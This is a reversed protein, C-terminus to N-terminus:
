MRKPAEIGLLWLGNRITHAFAQALALKYPATPSDDLIKETAYWSNWTSALEVLYTTIQHPEHEERARVVIEPFRYLLRELSTADHPALETSPKVGLAKAKELVSVARTHAYQLYPGSDGDFSLAANPDFTINKGVKQKLVSYKIAAVAVARAIDDKEAEPLDREAVKERTLALMNMLMDEGTIVNGRRSSMKGSSLNMMGHPVHMFKGAFEPRLRALAAFSVKFYEEQEVATVTISRDFDWKEAKLEALGLEKADYTPLGYSNLFVRTHLGIEEGKFVVAGESEVFVGDTLGEKVLARGPKETQSEFFYYDFKTGLLAYLEEFHALSVERGAKYAEAIEPAHAYVMKNYEVIEKKVEPDDEYMRNGEVYAHALDEISHASGGNKKLGWLCKAVHLGVDGQYNARRVEAGSYEYLRSLSEGITNSMLHGIHFPKFPNPQTYEIMVKEGKLDDHAGWREGAHLLDRVADRFFTRALHVNIFGPGAVEVREVLDSPPFASVIRGALVRPDEGVAKACALAVSTAYEGHSVDAPHTLQVDAELGLSTLASSFLDTIKERIM